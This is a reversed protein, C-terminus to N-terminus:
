LVDPDFPKRLFYTGGASRSRRVVDPIQAGSLFIVPVEQMGECQRLEHVLELGSTGALDIDSIILDPAADRVREIAEQASAAMQLDYDTLRLAEAVDNLASAEDDIILITTATRM